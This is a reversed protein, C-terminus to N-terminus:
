TTSWRTGDARFFFPIRSGLNIAHAGNIAPCTSCTLPLSCTLANSGHSNVRARCPAITGLLHLQKAPQSVATCEATPLSATTSQHPPLSFETSGPSFPEGDNRGATTSTFYVGTSLSMYVTPISMSSSCFIDRYFGMSLRRNECPLPLVSHGLCLSRSGLSSYAWKSWSGYDPSTGAFFPM